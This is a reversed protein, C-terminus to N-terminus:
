YKYSLKSYNSMLSNKEQELATMQSLYHQNGGLARIVNELSRKLRYQYEYLRHAMSFDEQGDFIHYLSMYDNRNNYYNYLTKEMIEVTQQIKFSEQRYGLDDNVEEYLKVILDKNSADDTLYKNSDPVSSMKIAQGNISFVRDSISRNLMSDYTLAVYNIKHSQGTNELDKLKKISDADRNKMDEKTINSTGYYLEKLTDSFISLRESTDYLHGILEPIVSGTINNKHAGVFEDIYDTDGVSVANLLMSINNYKGWDGDQFMAGLKDILSKINSIVCDVDSISSSPPNNIIGNLTKSYEVTGSADTQKNSVSTFVNNMEKIYELKPRYGIVAGNDVLQQSM